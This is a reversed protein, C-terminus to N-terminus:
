NQLVLSYKDLRKLAPYHGCCFLDDMIKTVKKLM